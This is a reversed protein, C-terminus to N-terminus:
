MQKKWEDPVTSKKLSLNFLATLVPSISAATGRLKVSSIGDPGSATNIKHTSLLKLVEDHSCSVNSLTPTPPSPFTTHPLCECMTFCSTFFDNLLNAKKASTSAKTGNLNLSPPTRTYRPNLKHYHSWFDRPVRINMSICHFYNKKASQLASTVCNRVKAYKAWASGTGAEKAHKYLRCKKRVLHHLDNTLYPVSTKPKIFKTPITDKMVTMFM